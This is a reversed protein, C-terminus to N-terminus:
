DVSFWKYLYLLVRKLCWRLLIVWVRQFLIPAWEFVNCKWQIVSCILFHCQKNMLRSQMNMLPCKINNPLIAYKNSLMVYLKAYENFLLIYKNSSMSKAYENSSIVYEHAFKVCEYSSKAYVICIRRCTSYEYKLCLHTHPCSHLSHYTRHSSVQYNYMHIHWPICASAQHSSTYLYVIKISQDNIIFSVWILQVGKTGSM